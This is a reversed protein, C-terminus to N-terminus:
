VGLFQPSYFINVELSEEGADAGYRLINDGIDLQLFVSAPDVFQFINNVVGNMESTVKKNGFHTTVTIIEGAQMTKNIKIMDQSNLNVIYPNVVSGLAKFEIRIGCPVDGNNFVNAIISEEKYGMIIGTEPINLPLQFAGVWLAMNVINEALEQWFPTPCYFTILVRQFRDSQNSSGGPLIPAADIIAPIKLQRLGDDFVLEGLGLKPNFVEILRRRLEALENYTNAIIVAELSIARENLTNDIYTVGDQKLGKYTQVTIDPVDLGEITTLIFPKRNSFTVSKNNANRFTLTTM